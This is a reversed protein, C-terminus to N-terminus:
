NGVEDQGPLLKLLGKLKEVGLGRADGAKILEMIVGNPKRFQKLFINVNM